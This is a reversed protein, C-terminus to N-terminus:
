SEVHEDHSTERFVLLKSFFYNLFVVTMSVLVKALMGKVGFITQSLGFHVLMPVGIIEMAGTLLRSGIFTVFEWFVTKTDTSTSKFVWFKNTFFAFVVACIWSLTNGIEIDLKLGSVFIAYSGFSVVTTMLGFVLYTILENYKKTIQKNM